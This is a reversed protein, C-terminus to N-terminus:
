YFRKNGPEYMTSLVIKRSNSNLKNVVSELTKRSGGDYDLIGYDEKLLAKVLPIIEYARVTTALIKNEWFNNGIMFHTRNEVLFENYLTVPNYICVFLHGNREFTRFSKPFTNLDQEILKDALKAYGAKRIKNILDSLNPITSINYLLKQTNILEIEEPTFRSMFYITNNAIQSPPSSPPIHLYVCCVVYRTLMVFEEYTINVFKRLAGVNVKTETSNNDRTTELSTSKNYFFDFLKYDNKYINITISKNLDSSTTIKFKNIIPTKAIYVPNPFHYPEIEGPALVMRVPFIGKELSTLFCYWRNLDRSFSLLNINLSKVLGRFYKRCALYNKVEPNFGFVTQRETKIDSFSEPILLDSYTNTNTVMNSKLFSGNLLNSYGSTSTKIFRCITSKINPNYKQAGWVINRAYAIELNPLNIDPNITNSNPDLSTFYKIMSDKEAVFQEPYDSNSLLYEFRQMLLVVIKGDLNDTEPLITGSLSKITKLFFNRHRQERKILDAGTYNLSIGKPFYLKIMFDYLAKVEPNLTPNALNIAHNTSDYIIIGPSPKIVRNALSRIKPKIIKNRLHPPVYRGSM